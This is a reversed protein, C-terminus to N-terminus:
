FSWILGLQGTFTQKPSLSYEYYKQHLLNEMKLYFELDYKWSYDARYNLLVNSKFKNNLSDKRLDLYLVEVQHDIYYFHKNLRFSNVLHALYPIQDYVDDETKSILFRFEDEFTFGLYQYQTDFTFHQIFSNLYRTSYLASSTYDYITQNKKWETRSMLRFPLFTYANISILANLPVQEQYRIHKNIGYYNKNLQQYFLEDSMYPKNELHLNMQDNIRISKSLALSPIYNRSFSQYIASQDFWPIINELGSQSSFVIQNKLFGLSIDHNESIFPFKWQSSMKFEPIQHDKKFSLLSDNNNQSASTFALYFQADQIYNLYDRLDISSSVSFMLANNKNEKTKFRSQKLQVIPKLALSGFEPSKWRMTMEHHSWDKNLSLYDENFFLNLAKREKDQYILQADLNWYNGFAIDLFSRKDARDARYNVSNQPIAPKYKLGDDKKLIHFSNLDKHIVISDPPLSEVGVIVEDPLKIDASFLSSWLLIISFIIMLHKM